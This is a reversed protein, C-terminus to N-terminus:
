LLPDRARSNLQDLFGADGGEPDPDQEHISRFACLLALDDDDLTTETEPVLNIPPPRYVDPEPNSSVPSPREPIIVKLQYIPIEMLGECWVSGGPYPPREAVKLVATKVYGDRPDRLLQEVRGIRYTAPLKVLAVDGISVFRSQGKIRRVDLTKLMMPDNRLGLYRCSIVFRTLNEHTEEKMLDRVEPYTLGM